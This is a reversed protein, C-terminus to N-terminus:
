CFRSANTPVVVVANMPGVPTDAYTWTVEIQPLKGPTGTSVSPLAAAVSRSAGTAASEGPPAQKSCGALALASLLVARLVGRLESHM